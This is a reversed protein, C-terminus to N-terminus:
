KLEHRVWADFVKRHGQEDFLFMLRNDSTIQIDYLPINHKIYLAAQLPNLIYVCTDESYVKGTIISTRAM